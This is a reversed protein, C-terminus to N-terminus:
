ATRRLAFAVGLLALSVLLAPEPLSAPTVGLAGIMVFSPNDIDNANNILRIASIPGGLSSAEFTILQFGAGILSTNTLQVTGLSQDGAGLAEVAGQAAAYTLGTVFSSDGAASGRAALTVSEMPIAFEILAVGPSQFGWSRTSATVYWSGIGVFFVSGPAGFVTDELVAVGGSFDTRRAEDVDVVSVAESSAPVWAAALVAISAVIHRLM